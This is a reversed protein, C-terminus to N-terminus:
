RSITKLLTPDVGIRVQRKKVDLITIKIDSDTKM